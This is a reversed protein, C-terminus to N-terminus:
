FGEIMELGKKNSMQRFNKVTHNMVKVLDDDEGYMVEMPSVDDDVTVVM